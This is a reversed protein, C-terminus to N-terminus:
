ANIPHKVATVVIDHGGRGARAADAERIVWGSASYSVDVATIDAGLELGTTGPGASAVARIGGTVRAEVLGWVAAVTDRGRM